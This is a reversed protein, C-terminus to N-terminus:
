KHIFLGAELEHNENWNGYFFIYVDIIEPGRKDRGVVERVFNLKYKALGRAVAKLSGTM